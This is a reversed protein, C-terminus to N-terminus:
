PSPAAGAAATSTASDLKQDQAKAKYEDVLNELEIRKLRTFPEARALRSWSSEHDFHTLIEHNLHYLATNRDVCVKM